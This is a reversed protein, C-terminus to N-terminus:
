SQLNHKIQVRGLVLFGKESFRNVVGDERLNPPKAKRAFRQLHGNVARQLLLGAPHEAIASAPFDGVFRQGAARCFLDGTRL